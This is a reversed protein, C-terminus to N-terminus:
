YSACVAFADPDNVMCPLTRRAAQGFVSAAVRPTHKLRCLEQTSAHAGGFKALLERAKYSNEWVSSDNCTDRWARNVCSASALDEHSELHRLISALATSPIDNITYEEM